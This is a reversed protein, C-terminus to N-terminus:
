LQADQCFSTAQAIEKRSEETFLHLLGRKLLKNGGNRWLLELPAVPRDFIWGKSDRCCQRGPTQVKRM